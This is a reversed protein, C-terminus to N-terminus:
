EVYFSMVLTADTSVEQNGEIIEVNAFSLVKFHIDCPVGEGYYDAIGPM